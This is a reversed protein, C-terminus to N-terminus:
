SRDCRWGHVFVVAALLESLALQTCVGFRPDMRGVISMKIGRLCHTQHYVTVLFIRDEPGLNVRGDQSPTIAMLGWEADGEVAAKSMNDTPDIFYHISDYITTAVDPLPGSSVPYYLPHDDEVYTYDLGANLNM